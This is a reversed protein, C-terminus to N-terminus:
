KNQPIWKQGRKVAGHAHSTAHFLAVVPHKVAVQTTPSTQLVFSGLATQATDNNGGEIFLTTTGDVVYYELSFGGNVTNLSPALINGRGTPSPDPTYTASFNGGQTLQVGMANEDILGTMNPSASPSGTLFQATDDVEVGQGTNIGTLNLGYNQTAAFSTASQAYAAGLALNISDTELILLGAYTTPYMVWNTAPSFGNLAVNIRGVGGSSASGSFPITAVFAGNNNLDESGNTFSGSSDITAYGGATIVTSTGGALTFVVQGAPITANAQTYFDGALFANALDTEIIKFHTPDVPYFDFMSGSGLVGNLVMTGPATGTGLTATGSLPRDLLPVGDENVDQVGATSVGSANFTISGASAIPFSDDIDAGALSVAYPNALQSIGTLATQLDMTGSGSGFNDFETVLGHSTSSLVFNFTFSQAGAVAVEFQGRGDQNVIYGGTAAGSAAGVSADVVDVNGGTINGNGDATIAGAFAVFAGNAEDLGTSSFVYTGNLSGKNFGVPNGSSSSSSGCAGLLLISTIAALGMFLRGACKHISALSNM